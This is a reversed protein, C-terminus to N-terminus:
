SSLYRWAYFDKVMEGLGRWGTRLVEWGKTSSACVVEGGRWWSGVVGVGLDECGEVMLMAFRSGWRGMRRERRRSVLLSRSVGALCFPLAM